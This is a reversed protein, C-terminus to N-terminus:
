DGTYFLRGPETGARAALSKRRCVSVPRCVVISVTTIEKRNKFISLLHHNTRNDGDCDPKYDYFYEDRNRFFDGTRRTCCSCVFLRYPHLARPFCVYVKKFAIPSPISYCSFGFFRKHSGRGLIFAAHFFLSNPGRNCVLWFPSFCAICAKEQRFGLVASICLVSYDRCCKGCLISKPYKDSSACHGNYSHLLGFLLIALAPRKVVSEAQM